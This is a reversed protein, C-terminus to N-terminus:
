MSGKCAPGPVVDKGVCTRLGRWCEEERLCFTSPEKLVITNHACSVTQMFKTAALSEGSWSALADEFLIRFYFAAM